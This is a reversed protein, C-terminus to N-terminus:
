RLDSDLRSRCSGADITSRSTYSSSSAAVANGEALPISGIEKEDFSARAHEEEILAEASGRRACWRAQVPSLLGRIQPAPNPPARRQAGRKAYPGYPHYDVIMAQGGPALM